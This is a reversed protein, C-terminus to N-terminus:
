EAKAETDAPKAEGDPPFPAAQSAWGATSARVAYANPQEASELSTEAEKLAKALRQWRPGQKREAARRITSLMAEPEDLEILTEVTEKLEDM